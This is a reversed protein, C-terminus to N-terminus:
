KAAEETPALEELKAELAKIYAAQLANDRTLEGVKASLNDLAVNVDVNM